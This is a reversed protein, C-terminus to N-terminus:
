AARAHEPRHLQLFADVIAPNFQKGSWTAIEHLAVEHCEGRRYARDRTIADYTDTVAVIQAYLSIREWPLAFPYGTGDHREHHQEVIAAINEPFHLSRLIAAGAGPHRRIAEWEQADLRGPKNLVADPTALKGIDHLLSGFKLAQLEDSTLQLARGLQLSLLNVRASHHATEPHRASLAVLLTTTRREIQEQNTTM